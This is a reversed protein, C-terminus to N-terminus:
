SITNYQSFTGFGNMRKAAANWTRKREREGGRWERKWATTVAGSDFYVM